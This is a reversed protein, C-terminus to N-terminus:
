LSKSIKETVYNRVEEVNTLMGKPLIYAAVASNYIFFYDNDEEIKKIGAWNVKTEGNFTSDVIGEDSLIMTGKGFLGDNKGEELMKKTHRLIHSYFYKPYFVIWLISILSFIIVPYLLPINGVGSFIFAMTLFILPSLFRQANLAKRTAKSNKAHFLNFNLYDEETLEYNIKM